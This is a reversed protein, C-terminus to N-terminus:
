QKNNTLTLSTKWTTPTIVHAVQTILAPADEGRWEIAVATIPDLTAAAAMHAARDTPGADHAAVLAVSSPMPDGTTTALYRRAVTEVDRSLLTTDINVAAGGWANAATPDSVTTDADDAEWEHQATDYKAGHNSLTVHAITDAASWAVNLDTYSWIRESLSSRDADTLTLAPTRPRRVRISVTGDRAVTWSGLVSAMLADLHRALSTEWVVPAMIQTATDHVQYTLEPASKILRALRAAWPESGDVGDAKAGYRTIAALRAVNDSATLSVEYDIRSGPKHPTITLDTIVGTFVLSRTPWHILRIPTGHHLGTARPSLANIARATLTGVAAAMAPGTTTVGRTVSIDTCPGTIDQWQSVNTEGSNWTRTDWATSNWVMAWTMTAGRTWSARNWRDTNWRLGFFGPLPYYAQLSLVDCPRPNDPIPTDDTITLEEVVGNPIGTVEIILSTGLSTNRVHHTYYTNRQFRVAEDGMRIVVYQGAQTTRIRIRATILHQPRLNDVTIRLFSAGPALTFRTRGAPTAETRVGEWTSPPPPPLTVM